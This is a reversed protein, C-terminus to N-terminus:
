LSKRMWFMTPCGSEYKSFSTELSSRIPASALYFDLCMVQNVKVMSARLPNRYWTIKGLVNIEQANNGEQIIKKKENSNRYSYKNNCRM